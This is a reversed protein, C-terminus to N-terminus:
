SETRYLIRRSHHLGRVSGDENRLIRSCRDQEDGKICLEDPNALYAEAHEQDEGQLVGLPGTDDRTIIVRGWPEGSRYEGLVGSVDAETVPELEPAYRPTGPPLGLLGAIASLWILDAPQDELNTLVVAGVGLEPVFGVHSSIGKLGGSHGILTVGNWNETVTLGYGYSAGPGCWVLPSQMEQLLRNAIGLPAGDAALLFRAYATLDQATSRLFGAGALPASDHWNPSEIVDGDPNEAYLTTANGDALVRDLDFTTREMGLPGTINRELYDSFPVGTARQVITGLLGWADNQYCFLSGPPEVRAEANLYAIIDETTEAAPLEEPPPVPNFAETPDGRGSEAMAYVLTPLAPLGSTQTLLQRVTPAEDPWLTLEPLWRTVPDDLSLLGDTAAKLVTLATFSKTVSAIGFFTDMDVPDKRGANRWGFGHEFLIEEASFVRVAIGPIGRREQLASLWDSFDQWNNSSDTM